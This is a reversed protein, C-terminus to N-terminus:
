ERKQYLNIQSVKRTQVPRISTLKGFKRMLLNNNRTIDKKVVEYAWPDRYRNYREIVVGGRSEFNYDNEVPTNEPNATPDGYETKLVESDTLFMGQMRVKRLENTDMDFDKRRISNFAEAYRGAKNYENIYVKKGYRKNLSDMLDRQDSVRTALNTAFLRKKLPLGNNEERDTSLRMAKFLAKNRNMYGYRKYKGKNYETAISQWRRRQSRNMNRYETMTPLFVAMKTGYKSRLFEETKSLKKAM